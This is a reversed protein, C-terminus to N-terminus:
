SLRRRGKEPGPGARRAPPPISLEERAAEDGLYPRVAIYMLQPVLRDISDLASGDRIERLLHEYVSGFVGIAVARGRSDPDDLERRGEDVLDILREVYRDRYAQATEGAELMAIINFRAEVPRDGFYRLAAYGATRMRERWDSHREVAGFVIRDFEAINALYIQLCCDRLGTFERDFDARDVGARALVMEVTTQEFGHEVVLEIM